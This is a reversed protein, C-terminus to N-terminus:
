CLFAPLNQTYYFDYCEHTSERVLFEEWWRDDWCDKIRFHSESDKHLGILTDEHEKRRTSWDELRRRYNTHVMRAGTLYLHEIKRAERELEAIKQRICDPSMGDSNDCESGVQFCIESQLSLLLSFSLAANHLCHLRQLPDSAITAESFEIDMGLYTASSNMDMMASAAPGEIEHFTKVLIRWSKSNNARFGSEVQWDASTKNLSFSHVDLFEGSGSACQFICDKPYAVNWMFDQSTSEVLDKPISAVPRIRLQTIKRSPGLSVDFKSWFDVTTTGPWQWAMRFSFKNSIKSEPACFGISGSLMTEGLVLTPEANREAIELSQSYLNCSTKAWEIDDGPIDVGRQKAEIKLKSLAAMGNTHLVAMRQAEECQNKADDVFKDLIQSMTMIRSALCSSGAVSARSNLKLRKGYSVGSSGVQPHCCAARLRHLHEVLINIKSAKRKREASGGVDCIASLTQELQKNYFHKEVSSFRLVIKKEVQEPIGMQDRVANFSKTSRWFVNSLLHQITADRNMSSNGFCKQFWVKHCFPPLRLFLLLGYLDELKGKGVPTGSICWRHTSELKLAMQASRATPTEVRQAEDLCIRWWVVSQLPSPVIRYRKRSRLSGDVVDDDDNMGRAVFRNDDSHGLDSMLAEFPVLVIDANALHDAHMFKAAQRKRQKSQATTCRKVGEYVVVHLPSGDLHRTHRQIERVWQNLIAPPTVILTAGSTLKPACCPCRKVDCIRFDLTSNTYMQRYQLPKTQRRLETGSEFGACDVHMPEDCSLCMVLQECKATRSSFSILDGCICAGIVDNETWKEKLPETDKEPTVLRTGLSSRRPHTVLDKKDESDSDCDADADGFESIDQVIGVKNCTACGEDFDLIRCAPVRREAVGNGSAAPPDDPQLYPNALICAL